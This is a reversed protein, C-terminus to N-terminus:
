FMRLFTIANNRLCKVCEGKLQVETEGVVTYTWQSRSIVAESEAMNNLFIALPAKTM